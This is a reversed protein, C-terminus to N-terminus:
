DRGTIHLIYGSQVLPELVQERRGHWATYKEELQEKSALEFLAEIVGATGITYGSGQIFFDM